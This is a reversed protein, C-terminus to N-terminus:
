AAHLYGKKRLAYLREYVASLLCVAHRLQEATGYGSNFDRAIANIERGAENMFRIAKWTEEERHLVPRNIELQAMLWANASLGAAASKEKLLEYDRASMRVCTRHSQKSTNRM